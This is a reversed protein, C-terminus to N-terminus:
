RSVNPLVDDLTGVTNGQKHLLHGLRHQFGLALGGGFARNSRNRRRRQRDGRAEIGREHRPEVPEATRGLLQCLDRRCDAALKRM